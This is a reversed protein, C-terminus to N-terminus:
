WRATLRIYPGHTIFDADGRDLDFHTTDSSSSTDTFETTTRLVNGSFKAGYGVEITVYDSLAHSIGLNADAFFVAKSDSESDEHRTDSNITIHTKTYKLDGFLVGGSVGGVLSTRGANIPKSFSGGVRPGVGFFRSRENNDSLGAESTSEPFRPNGRNLEFYGARVGILWRFETEGRATNYAAEIDGTYFRVDDSMDCVGDESSCEGWPTGADSDALTDSTADFGSGGSFAVAYDWPSGAARRGIKVSGIFDENLEIEDGEDTWAENSHRAWAYSGEVALYWMDPTVGMPVPAPEVLTPGALDAALAGRAYVSGALLAALSVGILYRAKQQRFM